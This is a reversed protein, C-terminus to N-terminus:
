YVFSITFEGIFSRIILIYMVRLDITARSSPWSRTSYARTTAIIAKPAIEPICKRDLLMLTANELIAVVSVDAAYDSDAGHHMVGGILVNLIVM